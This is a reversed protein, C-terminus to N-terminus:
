ISDAGGRRWHWKKEKWASFVATVEALIYEQEKCVEGDKVYYIWINKYIEEDQAQNSSDNLIGKPLMHLRGLDGGRGM